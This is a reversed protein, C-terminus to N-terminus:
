RALEGAVWFPRRNLDFTSFSRLDYGAIAVQTREAESPPPLLPHRVMLALPVNAVREVIADIRKGAITDGDRRVLRPPM